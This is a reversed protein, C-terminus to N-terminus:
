AGIREKVELLQVQSLRWRSHPFNKTREKFHLRAKEESQTRMTEDWTASGFNFFEVVFEVAFKLPLEEIM